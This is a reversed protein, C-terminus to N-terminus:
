KGGVSGLTMLKDFDSKKMTIVVDDGKMTIAARGTSVPNLNAVDQPTLKQRGIGPAPMGTQCTKPNYYAIRCGRHVFSETALGVAYRTTLM